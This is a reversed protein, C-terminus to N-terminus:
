APGGHWALVTRAVDALKALERTVSLQLVPVSRVIPAIRELMPGVADPGLMRGVKVHAMVAGAAFVPSFPTRVVDQAREAREHPALLYIAALPLPAVSLRVGPTASLALKGERTAVGRASIDLAALADEHVRLSHVGPWARPPTAPEIPLTDDTVLSAGAHVLALALSSKGFGKPALFAIVGEHTAVASGHLPLWGADFLAMALVRGLLHARLFDDWAGPKAVAVIRGDPFIDFDATDDVSVRLGADHTVLRAHVDGYILESGRVVPARRPALQDVLEFCWRAAGEPALALEPFEVGSALCSGYVAYKPMM